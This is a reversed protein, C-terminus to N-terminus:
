KQSSLQWLSSINQENFKNLISLEIVSIMSLYYLKLSINFYELM